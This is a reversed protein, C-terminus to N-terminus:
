AEERQKIPRIAKIQTTFDETAPKVKRFRFAAWTIHTPKGVFGLAVGEGGCDFEGWEVCEVRLVDGRRPDQPIPDFWDDDACVVVDGAQIDIM